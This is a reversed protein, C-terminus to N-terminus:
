GTASRSSQRRLLTLSIRLIMASCSMTAPKRGKGLREELEERTLVETLEHQLGSTQPGPPRRPWVNEHLQDGRSLRRAIDAAQLCARETPSHAWLAALLRSLSLSQPRVSVNVSGM